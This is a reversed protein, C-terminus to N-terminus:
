SPDSTRHNGVTTESITAVVMFLCPLVILSAILALFIMVATLQGYAAFMPMPAFGLIAFGVVSSAASAVLAVGTGRATMKIADMTNPNRRLEERFRETMHISYDIGIGVSIAGIMATVFNLAFGSIYMIGYLWAVVLIIPIVTIVAYKASRMTLTLLIIAAVLAIPLSTYLTRTSASLQAKRTFPSGTLGVKSISIHEQLNEMKPQLSRETAAVVNQDRTGPIQFWISTIHEGEDSLYIAQRVQESTLILAGGSGLVGQDIAFDLSTRTQEKSDPIGDRNIDNISIGTESLIAAITHPSATIIRLVNVINLGATVSGSPTEAIQDIDRLSEIFGSITEVASPDMLDGKVYVAGPEGGNNGVHEDLKDLGIVMESSSDFFDKVDFIPELKLAFFVSGATLIAVTLLVMRSHGAAGAVLVEVQSISLLDRDKHANDPRGAHGKRGIFFMYVIPIGLFLMAAAGLIIVGYVKSVAVLLIIAVGSSVAVGLAGSFRLVSYTTTNSRLGSAIILEDIRMVVMPAITGLIVFSAFVAIAAASGFHIVAEIPSSLNSLFAISDTLMALILAGIVSSLGIKLAMRPPYQKNIEEKYRRLAHVAFDVGLSIMGIPVILDIVLGSKLGILSSIGKLWIMLVGLGIGCIASAWYSKLTLGVVLLAGIVTFMIFIGATKGEDQAELNADIAIGWIDYSISGEKMVDRIHRNLHEKAIVDPGGGVGIELGGGGLKQNDTMVSFTMAPSVWLDIEHGIDTSPTHTAHQSLFDLVAATNPDSILRHVALKVEEESAEELTTGLDILAGEIPDLISHTGTMLIGTESDLYNVLYPQRELDGAALAGISDKAFLEQRRQKFELLVDPTLVDGDPSELLFPTFHISNPFKNNLDKQLEFVEGPPNPSAQLTPAMQFLPYLLLLTFVIAIGVILLTREALLNM